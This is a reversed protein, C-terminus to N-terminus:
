RSQLASKIWVPASGDPHAEVARKVAKLSEDRSYGLGQLALCATEEEDSVSSTKLPSQIPPLKERLELIIREASRKGIGKVRQLIEPKSQAIAHGIEDLSLGSLLSLANVPGLGRVSLLLRFIARDQATLFGFLRHADERFHPYLFLKVEDGQRDKLAQFVPFAIEVQYGVGNAELVVESPTVLCVNGRIHHYM